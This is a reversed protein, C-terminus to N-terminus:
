ARKTKFKKRISIKKLLGAYDIILKGKLHDIEHQLVRAFLDDAWFSVKKNLEDIGEVFIKKARKVKVSVEPLSLCGEEMVWSGEKKKISPNIIKFIGQGIDLVILQKNIGVQPAALGIGERSYMMQAMRDLLDREHKGVVKVPKSKKRLLRDGYVRIKLETEKM